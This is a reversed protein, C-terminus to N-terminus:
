YESEMLSLEMDIQALTMDGLMDVLDNIKSNIKPDNLGKEAFNIKDKNGTKQNKVSDSVTPDNWYRGYEAGDPAYNYSIELGKIMKTKSDVSTIELMTDITNGAILKSKLNGTKVPAKSAIKKSITDALTRAKKTVDNLTAM